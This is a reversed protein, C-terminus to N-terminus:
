IIPNLYGQSSKLTNKIILLGRKLDEITQPGSVSLRVANIGPNTSVSFRKSSFVQVGRELCRLEFAESSINQPLMLYRFFSTKNPIMDYGHLIDDILLNRELIKSLKFSIIEDYKTSNIIQSVIEANLPSAMITISDIGNTLKSIYKKPSSIYSVRFTPNLSKSTNAIFISNEPIYHSIPAHRELVTFSYPTDEILILNNESIIKAIEIRDNTSLTISTPNHCDPILYMGKINERKCAKKLDDIDIINSTLKVPVLIIGFLIALNKFGTYTYEDVIIRDGKSFLTALIISLANQSGSSIVIQEPTSSIGFRNLWKSAIYRHKLLGEPQVYRLIATYDIQENIEKLYQEILEYSDHLPLLMGMDITTPNKTDSLLNQPIGAESSIYTSKGTIGKILGKFECIKYARTVTSHNVELFNALVRQPPLKFGSKLVGNKIDKEIADAIFLYKPIKCNKLDPYWSIENGYKDIM